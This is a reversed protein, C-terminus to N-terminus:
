YFSLLFGSFHFEKKRKYLKGRSNNQLAEIARKLFKAGIWTSSVYDCRFGDIDAQNVWYLMADIMADALGTSSLFDLQYVDGFYPPAQIVGNVRHYYELRLTM